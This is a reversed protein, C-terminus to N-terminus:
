FSSHLDRPCRHIRHDTEDESRTPPNLATPPIRVVNRVMGNIRIKRWFAIDYVCHDGITEKWLRTRTTRPNPNNLVQMMEHNPQELRGDPLEPSSPVKEYLKLKVSAGEGALFDVVTRVNPQTRYIFAYSGRLGGLNVTARWAPPWDVVPLGEPSTLKHGQEIQKKRRWPWAM